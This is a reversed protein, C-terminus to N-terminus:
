GEDDQWGSKADLKSTLDYFSYILAEAIGRERRPLRDLRWHADQISAVDIPEPDRKGNLATYLLPHREALYAWALKAPEMDLAESIRPIEDLDCGRRGSELVEIFGQSLGLRGALEATTLRFEQRRSRILQGFKSTTPRLPRAMDLLNVLSIMRNM